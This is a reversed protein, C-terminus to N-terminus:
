DKMKYCSTPSHLLRKGMTPKFGFHRVARLLSPNMINEIYTMQGPNLEHIMNIASLGVGMRRYKPHVSIRAIDICPVMKRKYPWKTKRVYVGLVADDGNHTYFHSARSIESSPSANIWPVIQENLSYLSRLLISTHM